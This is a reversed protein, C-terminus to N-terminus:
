VSGEVVGREEEPFEDWFERHVYLDHTLIKLDIFLALSVGWVPFFPLAGSVIELLSKAYEVKTGSEYAKHLRYLGCIVGVFITAHPFAKGFGHIEQIAPVCAFLKAVVKGVGSSLAFLDTNRREVGESPLWRTAPELQM